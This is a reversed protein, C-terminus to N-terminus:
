GRPTRQSANMSPDRVAPRPGRETQAFGGGHRAAHGDPPHNAQPTPRRGQLRAAPEAASPKPVPVPKILAIFPSGAEQRRLSRGSNMTLLPFRSERSNSPRPVRPSDGVRKQHVLEFARIGFTSRRKRKGRRLRGVVAVPRGQMSPIRKRAQAVAIFQLPLMALLLSPHCRPCPCQPLPSHFPTPAPFPPIPLRQQSRSCFPPHGLLPSQPIPSPDAPSEDIAGQDVSYYFPPRRLAAPRACARGAAGQCGNGGLPDVAPGARRQRLGPQSAWALPSGQAAGGAKGPTVLQESQPPKCVERSSIHPLGAAVVGSARARAAGPGPASSEAASRSSPFRGAAAV